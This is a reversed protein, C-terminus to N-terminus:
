PCTVNIKPPRSSIGVEVRLTGGISVLAKVAVSLAYPMNLQKLNRLLPGQADEQDLRAQMQDDRHLTKACIRKGEFTKSRLYFQSYLSYSYQQANRIKEVLLQLYRFVINICKRHDPLRWQYHLVLRPSLKWQAM